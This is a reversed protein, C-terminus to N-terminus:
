VKVVANAAVKAAEIKARGHRIVADAILFGVPVLVSALGTLLKGLRGDIWQDTVLLGIVTSIGAIIQAPTIDPTKM